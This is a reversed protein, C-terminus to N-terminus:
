RSPPRTSTCTWLRSPARHCPPASHARRAALLQPWTSWGPNAVPAAEPNRALNGELMRRADHIESQSPERGIVGLQRFDLGLLAAAVPGGEACDSGLPGDLYGRIAALSAASPRYGAHPESAARDELGYQLWSESVDAFRAIAALNKPSPLGGKEIRYITQGRAGVNGGFEEQSM